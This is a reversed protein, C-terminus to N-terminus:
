PYVMRTSKLTDLREEKEYFLIAVGILVLCPIGM